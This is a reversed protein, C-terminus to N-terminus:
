PVAGSFVEWEEADCDYPLCLLSDDYQVLLQFHTWTREGAWISSDSVAPWLEDVAIPYLDPGSDGHLDVDFGQLWVAEAPGCTVVLMLAGDEIIMPEQDICDAFFDDKAEEELEGQLADLEEQLNEVEGQLIVFDETLLAEGEVELSGTQCAVLGTLAM